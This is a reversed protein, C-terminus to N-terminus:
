KTAWVSGSYRDKLKNRADTARDAHGTEDWLKALKSGPPPTGIKHYMLSPMGGSVRPRWWNWRACAGAAAAAGVAALAGIM